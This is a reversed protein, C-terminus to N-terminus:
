LLNLTKAKAVAETRRKVELKGYINQIYGKVTSLAIFLRQGIEKNSLGSEILELVEMERITLPEPLLANYHRREDTGKELAKIQGELQDLTYFDPIPNPFYLHKTESLYLKAETFAGQDIYIKCRLMLYRYDFDNIAMQSGLTKAEKMFQKCDEQHDELYASYALLLYLTPLILPFGQNNQIAKIHEQVRHNLLDLDHRHLWLHYRVMWFNDVNISEGYQSEYYIAKEICDDAMDFDDQHWYAFGLTMMIVGYKKLTKHAMAEKALNGYHFLDEIQGRAAARYAKAMLLNVELLDYQEFDVVLGKKKLVKFHEHEYVEQAYDLWYDAQDIRNNDILAWAYGMALVPRDKIFTEPLKTIMDLWINTTLNLDMLAWLHEIGVAARKYDGQELFLQTAEFVKESAMYWDAIALKVGKIRTPYDLGLQNKLHELLIERFLPHYRFFQHNGEIRTIFLNKGLIQDMIISSGKLFIDFVEQCMNRSFSEPIASLMLFNREVQSLSKFLEQILYQSLLTHSSINIDQNIIRKLSHAEINTEGISLQALKVGVAWGETLKYIYEALESNLEYPVQFNSSQMSLIEGIQAKDLKLDTEKIELLQGNLRDKNLNLSIRERSIVVIKVKDNLFLIVLNLFDHIDSNSIHHFDDFILFLSTKLNYLISIFMRLFRDKPITNLQNLLGLMNKGVAPDKQNISHAFYTLFIQIDNDLADLSYWVYDHIEARKLWQCVLTTKGYGTQCSVTIASIQDQSMLDILPNRMIFDGELKPKHLKSPIIFTNM